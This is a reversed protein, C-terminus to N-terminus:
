KDYALESNQFILIIQAHKDLTSAIYLNGHCHQMITQSISLGLGLGVKKTTMFPQMLYEAQSLNWGPGNDSLGVKTIQDCREIDVQLYPTILRCAELANNFLNVFVQEIFISNALVVSDGNIMLHVSNVKYQLKLIEWASYINSRLDTPSLEHNSRKTFQRLQKIIHNIREVLQDIKEVQEKIRILGSEKKLSKKISFLYISLANLPQNIEHALIMMTKGVTALKASQILEDQTARLNKEIEIRERTNKSFIKLFKAVRTIEDNGDVIIKTNFDGKSLLSVSQSLAMFRKILNKRIYIKNFFYLFLLALFISSLILWGGILTLKNLSNSLNNLAEHNAIVQQEVIYRIQSLADDKEKIVQNFESKSHQYQLFIFPVGNKESLLEFFSNLLQHLTTVSPYKEIYGQSLINKLNSISDSFYYKKIKEDPNSYILALLENKLQNEIYSLNYVHQLELQLNNLKASKLDDDRKQEFVSSQQWNIEQILALVENTFDDHLWNIKTNFEELNQKLIINRYINNNVLILIDKLEETKILLNDRSNRDNIKKVLDQINVIRVSLQKYLKERLVNNNINIFENFDDVFYNFSDEFKFIIKEQPIHYSLIYDVQKNQQYWSLLGVLGVIITLFTSFWLANRLKDAIKVKKLKILKEM